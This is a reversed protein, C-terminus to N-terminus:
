AGAGAFMPRLGLPAPQARRVRPLAATAEVCATLVFLVNSKRGLSNSTSATLILAVISLRGWPSTVRWLHRLLCALGAAFILFGVLGLNILALLWFNEIDTLATDLGVRYILDPTEAIPTGFLWARTDLM